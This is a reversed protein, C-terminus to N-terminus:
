IRWRTGGDDQRRAVIEGSELMFILDGSTTPPLSSRAEVRWIVKGDSLDRAVLHGDDMPFFGRAESYAPAATLSAELPVTTTVRFPPPGVPKPPVPSPAPTPAPVQSPPATAPVQPAPATAPAQTPPATQGRPSAVFAVSLAVASCCITTRGKTVGSYYRNIKGLRM